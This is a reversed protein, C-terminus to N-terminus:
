SLAERSRGFLLVMTGLRHPWALRNLPICLAEVASANYRQPTIMPDPIELLAVLLQIEAKSFRFHFECTTDTQGM